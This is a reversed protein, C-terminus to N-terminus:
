VLVELDRAIQLAAHPDLELVFAALEREGLERPHARQAARIEERVPLSLLRERHSRFLQGVAEAGIARAEDFGLRQDVARERAHQRLDVLLEAVFGLGDVLPMPGRHTASAAALSRRRKPESGMCSVDQAPSRRTIVSGPSFTDPTSRASTMSMM